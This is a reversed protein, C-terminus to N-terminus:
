TENPILINSVERFDKGVHILEYYTIILEEDKKIESPQEENNTLIIKNDGIQKLDYQRVIGNNHQWCNRVIIHKKIKEKLEPNVPKKLIEEIKKLKTDANMFDFKELIREQINQLINEGTDLSLNIYTDFKVTKNIKYDKQNSFHANLVYEFLQRLFEHWRQIIKAHVLEEIAGQHHNYIEIMEPDTLVSIELSNLLNGSPRLHVMPAVKSPKKIRDEIKSKGASAMMSLCQALSIYDSLDKHFSDLIAKM